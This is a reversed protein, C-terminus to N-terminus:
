KKNSRREIKDRKKPVSEETIEPNQIETIEFVDTRDTAPPNSIIVEEGARLFHLTAKKHERFKRPENMKNKIKWM